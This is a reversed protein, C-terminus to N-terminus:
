MRRQQEPGEGKLAQFQEGAERVGEGYLIRRGQAQRPGSQEEAEQGPGYGGGPEDGAVGDPDVQQALGPRLRIELAGRLVLSEPRDGHDVDVVQGVVQLVRDRGDLSGRQQKLFPIGRLLASEDESGRFEHLFKVISSNGHKKKTELIKLM